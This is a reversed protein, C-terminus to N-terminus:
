RRVFSDVCVRWSGLSHGQYFVFVFGLKVTISRAYWVVLFNEILHCFKMANYGNCTNSVLLRNFYFFRRAILCMFLKWTCFNAKKHNLSQCIMSFFKLSIKWNKCLTVCDTLDIFRISFTKNSSLTFCPFVYCLTSCFISTSVLKYQM